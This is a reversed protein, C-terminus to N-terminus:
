AAGRWALASLAAAPAFLAMRAGEACPLEQGEKPVSWIRVPMELVKALSQGLNRVTGGGGMLWVENSTLQRRQTQVFQLTRQVQDVLTEMIESAAETIAAQVERDGSADGEPALVGQTDLLHQAQDETVGLRECIAVVLRRLGCERIQRSYLPRRDVVVSLTVNSYGWDLALAGQHSRIAALGVARAMALPAGDISWCDLRAQQCDRALQTIWPKAVALVNVNFGGARETAASSDLEWYGFDVPSPREAWDDALESAIMAQREQETGQPVSLGHLLCVNMSLVGAANRGVFNGYSRAASIEGSSTNPTGWAMAEEQPWSVARQIVAAHLLRVGAPSRVVQALKVTHTGVDVGIWGLRNTFV